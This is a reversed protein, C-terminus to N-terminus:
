HTVPKLSLGSNTVSTILAAESDADSKYQMLFIVVLRYM